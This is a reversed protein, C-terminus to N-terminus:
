EYDLPQIWEEDEWNLRIAEPLEKSLDMYVCIRAYSIYRQLKTKESVKVFEGLSNGIDQLTELDWFESPLSFMRIWVPAVKMDETELNFREKWPRLYLGASFMFYPGGELIRDREEINFFLITFFGKAGLQLDHHGRPKWITKIWRILDSEKPWFGIFKGILAKEKWLEIRERVKGSRVQIAPLETAKPLCGGQGRGRKPGEETSESGGRDM